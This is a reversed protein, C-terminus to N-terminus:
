MKVISLFSFCGINKNNPYQSEDRATSEDDNNYSEMEKLYWAPPWQNDCILDQNDQRLQLFQSWLHQRVYLFNTSLTFQCFRSLQRANYLESPELLKLAAKLKEEQQYTTLEEVVLAEIMNVLQRLCLRNALEILMICDVGSLSPAAGAYLYEKLAGFTEMTVGPLPVIDWASEIFHDSFMAAMVECSAVLLPKHASVVGDDVEFSIDELFDFNTAIKRLRKNRKEHFKKEIGRNLYNKKNLKNEIVSVLDFIQMLHATKKLGDLDAVHPDLRGTYLYRVLHTFTNATIDKHLLIFTKLVLPSGSPHSNDMHIEMSKIARRGHGINLPFIQSCKADDLFSELRAYRGTNRNIECKMRRNIDYKMRAELSFLDNFFESAVSLCIRHAEIREDQVLFVVDCFTSNEFLPVFDFKFNRKGIKIEPFRPQPVEMPLQAAPSKVRKLQATWFSTKRRDTLVARAANVFVDDVGYRDIVSTEYYFAGIKQALAKACSPIVIDNPSRHRSRLYTKDMTYCAESYAYRLDAKTGCLVMPKSTNYQHIEPLWVRQINDFSPPHPISFCMVIVDAEKYAFIRDHDHCGFTDWIRLSVQYGDISRVSRELIENDHQYNDIAWVSSQHIKLFNDPCYTANCAYARTLYTKGVGSDGIVVCNIVEEVGTSHDSTM